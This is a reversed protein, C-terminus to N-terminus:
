ALEFKRAFSFLNKAEPAIRFINKFLLVGVTEDGLGYAANWTTQILNIREQSLENDEEFEPMAGKAVINLFM